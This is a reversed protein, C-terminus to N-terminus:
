GNNTKRRGVYEMAEYICPYYELICDKGDDLICDKCRFSKYPMGKSITDRVEDESMNLFNAKKLMKYVKDDIDIVLKM